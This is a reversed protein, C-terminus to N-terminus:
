CIFSIHILCQLESLMSTLLPRHVKIYFKGEMFAERGKVSFKYSGDM